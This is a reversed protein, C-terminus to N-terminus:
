TSLPPEASQPARTREPHLLAPHDERTLTDATVCTNRGLGKGRYLARDAQRILTEADDADDPMAAVGFTITTVPRSTDARDFFRAQEIRRRVTEAVYLAGDRDTDPLLMVFEEGGYRAVTDAGRTHALFIEAVGRLVEDGRQHGYTDNVSKFNDLDGVVLALPVGRAATQAVENELVEQFHRRNFLNTVGDRIALNRTQEYLHANEIILGAQRAFVTLLRLERSTFDRQKRSLAGILGVARREGGRMVTFLPAVIVSRFGQERLTEYQNTAALDNVLRSRGQGIGHSRLEDGIDIDHHGREIRMFFRREEDSYLQLFVINTGLVRRLANVSENLVAQIDRTKSFVEALDSLEALVAAEEEQSAGRRALTEVERSLRALTREDQAFVYRVLAATVIVLLGILFVLALFVFLEGSTPPSVSDTRAIVHWAIWLCCTGQIILVAILLRRV